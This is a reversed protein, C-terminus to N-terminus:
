ASAVKGGAVLSRNVCDIVSQEDVIGHLRIVTASLVRIREQAEGLLELAAAERGAAGLLVDYEAIPVMVERRKALLTAKDEEHIEENVARWAMSWCLWESKLWERFKTMM